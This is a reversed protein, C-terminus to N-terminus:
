DRWLRAGDLNEKCGRRSQWAAEVDDASHADALGLRQRSNFDRDHDVTRMHEFGFLLFGPHQLKQFDSSPRSSEQPSSFAFDGARRGDRASQPERQFHIDIPFREVSAEGRGPMPM